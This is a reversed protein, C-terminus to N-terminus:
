ADDRGLDRVVRRSSGREDTLQRPCRAAIRDAAGHRRGERGAGRARGGCGAPDCRRKDDGARAVLAEAWVAPLEKVRTAAASRRRPQPPWRACRRSRRTSQGTLRSRRRSCSRSPRTPPSNRSSRSCTTASRPQELDRVALRGKFFGVLASGWESHRAAIWWATDKLVPDSSDLLPVLEDPKLQGGDMQDLAILAARRSRSATAQLGAAVTSASDNIEIVAYTLSHELVRDTPSASAAVLDPVARADGVRGLAEAAVRQVAPLGSKLAAVLQPLAAEDRWLGAPISRLGGCARTVIASRSAFRRARGRPCRHPDAGLCRQAAGGRLTVHEPRRRASSRRCHGGNRVASPGQGQVAPRADDLLATLGAPPMVNWALASGRPDRPKPAGKRRVRYIGGLVEPKALQSTPCCLKYWPGTDIVLLSGDADEVVDTPISIEITRCSFTPM